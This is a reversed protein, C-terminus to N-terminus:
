PVHFPILYIFTLLNKSFREASKNNEKRDRKNSLSFFIMILAIFFGSLNNAIKGHERQIPLKGISINRKVREQGEREFDRQEKRGSKAREKEEREFDALM